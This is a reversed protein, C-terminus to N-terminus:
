LCSCDSSARLLISDRGAMSFQATPTGTPSNKDAPPIKVVLPQIKGTGDYLTSLGTGNDSVWWPGGSGRSMGWPNVLNPDIVPAGSKDPTLKTVQYHQALAPTTLTAVAMGLATLGAGLIRNSLQQM